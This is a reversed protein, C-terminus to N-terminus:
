SCHAAKESRRAVAALSFRGCGVCAPPLRSHARRRIQRTSSPRPRCAGTRRRAHQVRAAEDIVGILSHHSFGQRALVAFRASSAHRPARGRTSASPSFCSPRSVVASGLDQLWVLGKRRAVGSRHDRRRLGARSIRRCSRPTQQSTRMTLTANPWQCSVHHRHAYSFACGPRDAPTALRTNAIGDRSPLTLQRSEAATADRRRRAM